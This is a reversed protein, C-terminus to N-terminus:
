IRKTETHIVYTNGDEKCYGMVVTVEEKYLSDVASQVVFELTKGDLDKWQFELEPFQINM